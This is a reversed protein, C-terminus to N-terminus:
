AECQAVATRRFENDITWIGAIPLKDRRRRQISDIVPHVIALAVQGLTQAIVNLVVVFIQPASFIEVGVTIPGIGGIVPPDPTRM